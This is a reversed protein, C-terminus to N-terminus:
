AYYLIRGNKAYNIHVQKSQRNLKENRKYEKVGIIKIIESTIPKLM